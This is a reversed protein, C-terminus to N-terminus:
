HVAVYIASDTNLVLSGDRAAGSLYQNPSPSLPNGAVDICRVNEPVSASDLSRTMVTSTRLYILQNGSIAFANGLSGFEIWHQDVELDRILVLPFDSYYNVFVDGNMAVNLAYCDDIRPLKHIAACEGYRFVPEGFRDFCVLGQTSIGEGYVGEDFYGVWIRGDPLTQLHEIADGINLIRILAGATSYVNARGGRSFALIWGDEYPQIHSALVGVGQEIRTAKVTGGELFVIHLAKPPTRHWRQWAEPGDERNPRPLQGEAMLLLPSGSWDVAVKVLKWEGPLSDFALCKEFLQERM